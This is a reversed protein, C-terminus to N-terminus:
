TLRSRAAALDLVEIAINSLDSKVVYRDGGAALAARKTEDDSYASLFVVPVHNGARRLRAAIELGNMDPLSIDLVVVDPALITIDRLAAEGNEVIGVVDCSPSLIAAARSRILAHDEVLLVRPRGGPTM